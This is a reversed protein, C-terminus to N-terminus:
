VFNSGVSVPETYTPIAEGPHFIALDDSGDVGLVFRFPFNGMLFMAVSIRSYNFRQKGARDIDKKNLIANAFM